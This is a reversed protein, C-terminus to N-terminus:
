WSGPNSGLGKRNQIYRKLKSRWLDPGYILPFSVQSPRKFRKVMLKGVQMVQEVANLHPDKESFDNLFLVEVTMILIM